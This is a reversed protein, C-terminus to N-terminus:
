STKSSHPAIQQFRVSSQYIRSLSLTGSSGSIAGRRGLVTTKKFVSFATMALRNTGFCGGSFPISIEEVPFLAARARIEPKHQSAEKNYL